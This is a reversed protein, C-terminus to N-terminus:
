EVSIDPPGADRPFAINGSPTFLESCSSEKFSSSKRMMPRKQADQIASWSLSNESSSRKSSGGAPGSESRTAARITITIAIIIGPHGRRGEPRLVTVMDLASRSRSSTSAKKERKKKEEHWGMESVSSKRDKLLRLSPNAFNDLNVRKWKREEINVDDVVLVRTVEEPMETEKKMIANFMEEDAMTWKKVLRVKRADEASAHKPEAPTVQEFKELVAIKNAEQEKEITRWTPEVRRRRERKRRRIFYVALMVLLFFLVVGAAILLYTLWDRNGKVESPAFKRVQFIATSVDSAKYGQTDELYFPDSYVASNEDPEAAVIERKGITYFIKAEAPLSTITVKANTMWVGTWQACVGAGCSLKDEQGMGDKGCAQGNMPGGYCYFSPSSVHLDPSSRFLPLSVGRYITYRANNDGDKREQSRDGDSICGDKYEDNGDDDDVEEERGALAISHGDGGKIASIKVGANSLLSVLRPQFECFNSQKCIKDNGTTSFGLQGQTNLGFAYLEGYEGIVFSFQAGCGIGRAKNTLAVALPPSMFTRGTQGMDANGWSLVAGGPMLALGHTTGLCLDVAGRLAAVEAPEAVYQSINAYGLGLQQLQNRGFGFVSGGRTMVMSFDLGAFVRKVPSGLVSATLRSSVIPSFFYCPQMQACGSCSSCHSQECCGNGLCGQNASGWAFVTGDEALALVHESGASVDVIISQEGNSGSINPFVVQLPSKQCFIAGGGAQCNGQLCLSAVVGLNGTTCDGFSYLRGESTLILSYEGMGGGGGVGTVVKTVNKGRWWTNLQDSLAPSSIKAVNSDTGLQGRENSGWVWVNSESRAAVEDGVALDMSNCLICVFLLSSWLHM